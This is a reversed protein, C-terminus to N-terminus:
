NFKKRSQRISDILEKVKVSKQQRKGQEEKDIKFIQKLERYYTSYLQTHHMPFSKNPNNTFIKILTEISTITKSEDKEKDM